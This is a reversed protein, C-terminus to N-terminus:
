WLFTVFPENRALREYRDIRAAARITGTGSRFAPILLALIEFVFMDETEDAEGVDPLNENLRRLHTGGRLILRQGGSTVPRRLRGCM